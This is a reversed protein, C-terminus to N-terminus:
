LSIIEILRIFSRTFADEDEGKGTGRGRGRLSDRYLMDLTALDKTNFNKLKTKSPNHLSNACGSMSTFFPAFRSSRSTFSMTVSLSVNSMSANM